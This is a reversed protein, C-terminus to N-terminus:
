PRPPPGFLLRLRSLDIRDRLRWCVCAMAGWAVLAFIWVGIASVCRLVLYFGLACVLLVGTSAATPGLSRFTGTGFFDVGPRRRGPAPGVSLAREVIGFVPFRQRPAAREPLDNSKEVM